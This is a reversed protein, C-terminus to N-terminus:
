AARKGGPRTHPSPTASEQKRAVNTIPHHKQAGKGEASRRVNRSQAKIQAAAKETSSAKARLTRASAERDVEMRAEVTKRSVLTNFNSQQGRGTKEQHLLALGRKDFKDFWEEWTIPELSDAGTYGPFDLRPMGIDGEGGTGRVCAPTAGREDAWRRIEDHDTTAIAKAKSPM